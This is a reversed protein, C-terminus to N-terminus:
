LGEGEGEGQKGVVVVGVSMADSGIRLYRVEKPVVLNGDNLMGM